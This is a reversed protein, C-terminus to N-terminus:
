GSAMADRYSIRRKHEKVDKEKKEKEKDQKTKRAKQHTLRRKYSVRDDIDKERRNNWGRM